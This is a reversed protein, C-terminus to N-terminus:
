EWSDSRCRGYLSQRTTKDASLGCGSFRDYVVIRGNFEHVFDKKQLAKLALSVSSAAPLSYKLLFEQSLASVVGDEKAIAILLDLQNDTLSKCYTIFSEEQENVVDDVTRAITTKDILDGNAYLRNLINPYVM